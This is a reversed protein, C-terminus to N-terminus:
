FSKKYDGNIKLEDETLVLFKWKRDECFERAAKWKAQNVGYTFVEELFQKTVRKPKVPEQTFKKPKIEILYKEIQGDRDQVKMYFDVFYRHIRKDVPSVYPIVAVESGWELIAPTTDCWNMFKLEWSSRYIIDNINGRYKDPNKVKYRGKYTEKYM